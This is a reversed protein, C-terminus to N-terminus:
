TGMGNDRIADLMRRRHGNLAAMDQREQEVEANYSNVDIVSKIAEKLLAQLQKPQM